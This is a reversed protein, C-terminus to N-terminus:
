RAVRWLNFSNGIQDMWVGNARDWKLIIPMPEPPPLPAPEPPRSLRSPRINRKVRPKM